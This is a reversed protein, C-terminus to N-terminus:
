LEFCTSCCAHPVCIFQKGGGSYIQKVRGHARVNYAHVATPAPPSHLHHRITQPVIKNSDGRWLVNSVYWARLCGVGSALPALRPARAREPTSRATARGSFKRFSSTQRFGPQVCAGNSTHVPSGHQLTGREPQQARPDISPTVSRKPPFPDPQPHPQRHHQASRQRLTSLLPLTASTYRAEASPEWALRWRDHTHEAHVRRSKGKM